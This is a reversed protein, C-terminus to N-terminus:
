ECVVSALTVYGAVAELAITDADDGPWAVWPSCTRVAHHLAVQYSGSSLNAFGIGGAAGTETLAADPLLDAQYFPGFGNAPDIAASVGAVNPTGEARGSRAELLINGLHLDIEKGIAGDLLPLLAMPFTLVRFSADSTSTEYAALAPPFEDRGELSFLVRKRPPVRMVFTGQRDTTACPADDYGFLCVTLGEVPHEAPEVVTGTIEVDSDDDRGEPEPATPADDDGKPWDAPGSCALCLQACALGVAFLTWRPLPTIRDVALRIL